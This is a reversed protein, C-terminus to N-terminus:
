KFKKNIYKFAIMWLLFTTAGYMATLEFAHSPYSELVPKALRNMAILGAFLAYSAIINKM